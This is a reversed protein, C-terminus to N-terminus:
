NTQDYTTVNSYYKLNIKSFIESMCNYKKSFLM